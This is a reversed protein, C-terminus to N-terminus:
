VQTARAQQILHDANKDAFHISRPGAANVSVRPFPFVNPSYNEAHVLSKCSHVTSDYDVDHRLDGKQPKGPM